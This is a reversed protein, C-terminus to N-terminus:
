IISIKLNTKIYEKIWASVSPELLSVGDLVEKLEKTDIIFPEEMQNSIIECVVDVDYPNIILVFISEAIDGLPIADIHNTYMVAHFVTGVGVTSDIEFIGGTQECTQKFLPIGLGVKRTKRTTYFPNTVQAKIDDSMGCGDDEIWVHICDKEEVIKIKVVTANAKFANTAVDLIHLSLDVM